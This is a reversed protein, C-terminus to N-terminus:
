KSFVLHSVAAKEAAARGWTQDGPANDLWLPLQDIFHPDTPYGVQGGPIVARWRIAGPALEATFRVNPGSRQVYGDAGDDSWSFNAVDVTHLGGDNAYPGVDLDHIGVNALTNSLYLRHKRGWLWDAPSRTGFVGAQALFGVTDDLAAVAQQACTEVTGPTTVDDCLATGTALPVSPTGGKAYAALASLYRAAQQDDLLRGLANVSLPQGGVSVTSLEDDLIRRALRPVLAHFLMSASAAERVRADTVPASTPAHGALGTPTRYRQPNGAAAWAQLLGVAPGLGKAEIAAAVAPDAYWALLAPVLDEAFLSYDDAQASTMDDLTYGTAKETLRQEARKARYGLDYAAALYHPVALPNNAATVGVIDNNATVLYGRAPNKAQPLDADAIRGTWDCSGDFGPMPAWPVVLSPQGGVLRQGFCGARRVPVYAHPYYGINGDVDGVVFNQAGVQFKGLATFAEDVNRAANLDFFAEMENSAEQGTWRATLVLGGASGVAPGYGPVLLVGSTVPSGGRVPITEPVQGPTVGPPTVPLGGAGAPFWYVDTVDHYAVTDGWGIRDNHGIEVVPAGPFAVGGVQRTPTQLEVLHFNPPSSLSLHPDNAVLVHGGATRSPGVVWNNSGARERGPVSRALRALEGAQALADRLAPAFAAPVAPAARVATAPPLVYAEAAPAYRTMDVFLGYAPCQAPPTAGCAALAAQAVQGFNIETQLSESLQFTLIRMVGLTDEVTWPTIAYPHAPDAAQVGQYEFSLRAGNAGTAADQLFRNVGDAYRELVGRFGPSLAAAIVDEIRYSGNPAPSPATFVTRIAVDQEVAAPSFMEALRGRGARRLFDMQFMRDRAHLYGMAFAGDEDSSAYVHPVGYADTFVDVNAGLGANGSVTTSATSDSSSGSCAALAALALAALRRPLPRAM